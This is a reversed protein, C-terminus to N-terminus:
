FAHCSCLKSAYAQRSRNPLTLLERNQNHADPGAQAARRPQQPQRGPRSPKRVTYARSQLRTHSYHRRM